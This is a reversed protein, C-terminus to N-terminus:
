HGTQGNSGDSGDTEVRFRAFLDHEIIMRTAELRSHVGLKTLINQTHTRATHPSLNLKAAIAADGLGDVLGALVERERKGLGAFREVAADDERRFDILGRLLAGLMPPPIHSEGQAVRRLADVLDDLSDGVTVFGDAGAKVASLLTSDDQEGGVVLVRTGPALRKIDACARIGDWHPLDACVLAVQPGYTRVKEVTGSVTLDWGVVRVGERRSLAMDLVEVVALLGAGLAVTIPSVTV